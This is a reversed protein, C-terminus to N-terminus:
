EIVFDCNDIDLLNKHSETLYMFIMVKLDNNIKIESFFKYISM